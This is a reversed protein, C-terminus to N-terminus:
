IAFTTEYIFKKDFYSFSKIEMFRIKTSSM